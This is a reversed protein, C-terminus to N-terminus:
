LEFLINKSHSQSVEMFDLTSRLLDKLYKNKGQFDELNLLASYIRNIHLAYFIQFPTNSASYNKLTNSLLKYLFSQEKITIECKDFTDQIYKVQNHTVQFNIREVEM